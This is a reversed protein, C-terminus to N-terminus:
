RVAGARAAVVIGFAMHVTQGGGRLSVGTVEAVNLGVCTAFCLVFHCDLINRDRADLIRDNASAYDNMGFGVIAALGYSVRAASNPADNNPDAFRRLLLRAAEM